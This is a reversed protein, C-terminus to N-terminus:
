LVTLGFRRLIYEVVRKKTEVDLDKTCEVIIGIADLEADEGNTALAYERYVQSREVNM